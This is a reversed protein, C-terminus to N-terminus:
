ADDDEAAEAAKEMSTKAPPKKAMASLATPAPMATSKVLEDKVPTPKDFPVADQPLYVKTDDKRAEPSWYVVEKGDIIDPIEVGNSSARYRVGALNLNRKLLVKM